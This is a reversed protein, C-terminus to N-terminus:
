RKGRIYVSLTLGIANTQQNPAKSTDNSHSYYADIEVSKGIPFAVGGTLVTKDIKGYRSDYYFEGQAYPTLHYGSLSVTREISLRNRYRTSFAGGIWRFEGRNRDALCFGSVLALQPTVEAIVRNEPAAGPSTLYRYGAEFVLPRSKSEDVRFITFRKLRELSKFFYDFSPGIQFGPYESTEQTTSAALYARSNTSTKVYLNAEPWFENSQARVCVAPGLVVMALLATKGAITRSSIRTGPMM